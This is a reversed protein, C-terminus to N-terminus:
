LLNSVMDNRRQRGIDGLGEGKLPLCEEELCEGARNAVCMSARMDSYSFRAISLHCERIDCAFQVSFSLILSYSFGFLISYNLRNWTIRSYWERKPRDFKDFWPLLFYIRSFCSLILQSIMPISTGAADKTWYWRFGAAFCIAVPHCIEHMVCSCIRQCSWYSFFDWECYDWFLRKKM